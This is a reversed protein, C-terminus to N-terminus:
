TSEIQREYIAQNVSHKSGRQGLLFFFGLLILLGILGSGLLTNGYNKALSETEGADVAQLFDAVASREEETLAKGAFATRMAPFPPSAMMADVGPRTLRSVSDTLDKAFSGGTMVEDTNVNHCSNCATGGNEFRTLGVFLRQGLLISESRLNEPAVVEVPENGAETGVPSRLAIYGLIARVDDDSLANDPMLIGAYEQLMETAVLDGSQILSNPSQVFDIIWSEDRRNHVGALDPGILRGTGITHCAVCTQNFLTEGRDQAQIDPLLLFSVLFLVAGSFFKMM